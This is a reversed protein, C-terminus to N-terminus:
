FVILPINRGKFHKIDLHNEGDQPLTNKHYIKNLGSEDNNTLAFGEFDSEDEDPWDNIIQQSLKIFYEQSDQQEDNYQESETHNRIESSEMDNDISSNEYIDSINMMETSNPTQPMPSPQSNIVIISSHPSDLLRLQPYDYSIDNLVNYPSTNTIDINENTVLSQKKLISKLPQAAQHVLQSDTILENHTIQM